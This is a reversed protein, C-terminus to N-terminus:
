RKSTKERRKLLAVVRAAGTKVQKVAQKGFQAVVPTAKARWENLAAPAERLL